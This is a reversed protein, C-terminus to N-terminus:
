FTLLDLLRLGRPGLSWRGDRQVLLNQCRCRAAEAENVEKLVFKGGPRLEAATRPVARFPVGSFNFTLDYGAVGAAPGTGPEVLAAYRRIWAFDTARVQITCLPVQGQVFRRFQFRAGERRQAWFIAAPDLGLLNQGNFNGHDNRERPEVRRFWADFRDSIMLAIEFHLHARDKAIPTRTNTSRGLTGITQGARVTQGPRLNPAIARLHAYLTYVELGDIHHQVVLYRGYNSLAPKDNIYAVTGDAAAFVPDIPEGQRDRQVSLIDIGEHLQLGESRTCGFTGAVWTRGPTPAFFREEGGPEFLATNPTPLRFPGAESGCALVFWGVAVLWGLGGRM